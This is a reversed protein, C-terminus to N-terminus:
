VKSSSSSDRNTVSGRDHDDKVVRHVAFQDIGTGEGNFVIFLGRDFDHIDIHVAFEDEEFEAFFQSGIGSRRQRDSFTTLDFVQGAVQKSPLFREVALVVSYLNNFNLVADQRDQGDGKTAAGAGSDAGFLGELNVLAAISMAMSDSSSMLPEGLTATTQEFM